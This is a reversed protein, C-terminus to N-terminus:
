FKCVSPLYMWASGWLYEDCYGSSNYFHAITPKGQSYRGRKGNDRSFTFLTTAGKVLKKSYTPDDKFVISAAVLAVVM